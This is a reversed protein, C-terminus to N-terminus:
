SINWTMTIKNQLYECITKCSRGMWSGSWVRSKRELVQVFGESPSCLCGWGTFCFVFTLVSTLFYKENMLLFPLLWVQCQKMKQRKYLVICVFDWKFNDTLVPCSKLSEEHYINLYKQNTRFRSFEFSM